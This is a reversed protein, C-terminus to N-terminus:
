DSKLICCIKFTLNPSFGVNSNENGDAFMGVVADEHTSDAEQLPIVQRFCLSSVDSLIQIIEEGRPRAKPQDKWCEEMLIHINPLTPIMTYGCFNFDPRVGRITAAMRESRELDDYPWMGTM